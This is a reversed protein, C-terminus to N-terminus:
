NWIEELEPDDFLEGTENDFDFGTDKQEPELVTNEQVIDDPYELNADIDTKYGGDSEVASAMQTSLIGWSSLASKLVTKRCMAEFHDAWASGPYFRSAKQDWSKSFKKAHAMIKEMSWYVMKRFGNTFEFFAVYGAINEYRGNARDGNAVPDIHVEGTIIDESVLEDRYVETVNMGKYQGTRLALQVFGKTMVQFQAQGNYPVIAAFGLSPNIDLNLTAAIMASAMVSKPDCSQLKNNRNVASVVSALFQSAKDKDGLVDKFRNVIAPSTAMNKITMVANSSTNKRQLTNNTKM